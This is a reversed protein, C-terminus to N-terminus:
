ALVVFLCSDACIIQTWEHENTTLDSSGHAFVKQGEEAFGPRQEIAMENQSGPQM